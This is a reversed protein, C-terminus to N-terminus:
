FFFINVFYFLIISEDRLYYKFIDSVKLYHSLFFCNDLDIFGLLFYIRFQQCFNVKESIWFQDRLFM